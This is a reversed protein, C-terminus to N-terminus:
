CRQGIQVEDAGRVQEGYVEAGAAGGRCQRQVVVVQAGDDICWRQSQVV